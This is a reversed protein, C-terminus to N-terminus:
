GETLHFFELIGRWAGEAISRAQPTIEFCFKREGRPDIDGIKQNAKVRMGSRLLGWIVGPIPALVLHDEVLAIPESQEVSDGINKFSSLIGEGPSVILRELTLGQIPTPIGTEPEASGQRILCGLFPSAPNTEIIQHADVGVTFGPGLAAVLPASQLTTGTNKKAMIGDMLVDPKLLDLIRTKPDEIIPIRGSSWERLIEPLSPNTRQAAVGEIEKRGDQLAECFSVGRREALPHRLDTMVIKRIGGRYLRHSVASAKEGAGKILVMLESFRSHTM